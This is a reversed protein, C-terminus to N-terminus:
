IWIARWVGLTPPVYKGLPLPRLLDPYLGPMDRLYGEDHDDFAVLSAPVLEVVSVQANVALPGELDVRLPPVQKLSEVTPPLFALQVSMKEGLFGSLAAGSRAARPQEDPFVKELSDVCQFTWDPRLPFGPAM